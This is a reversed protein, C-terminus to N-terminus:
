PATCFRVGPYNGAEAAGLLFRLAWFSHANNAAANCAAVVGWLLTIVPLWTRGGVYSIVVNSPIALAAYGAYFIGAVLCWSDEQQPKLHHANHM